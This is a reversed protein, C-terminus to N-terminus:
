SWYPRVQLHVRAKFCVLNLGLSTLKIIFVRVEQHFLILSDYVVITIAAVPFLDYKMSFSDVLPWLLMGYTYKVPIAKSYAAVIEAPTYGQVSMIDKKYVSTSAFFPTLTPSLM